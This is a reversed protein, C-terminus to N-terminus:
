AAVFGIRGADPSHASVEDQAVLDDFRQKGTDHTGKASRWLVLGRDILVVDPEALFEVSGKFGDAKRRRSFNAVCRCCTPTRQEILAQEPRYSVTVADGRPPTSLLPLRVSGDTAFAFEIRGRQSALRGALPSAEVQAFPFGM